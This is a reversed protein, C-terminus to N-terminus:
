KPINLVQLEVLFPAFFVSTKKIKICNVAETISDKGLSLLVNSHWARPKLKRYYDLSQRMLHNNLSSIFPGGKLCNSSSCGRGAWAYDPLLVLSASLSLFLTVYTRLFQFRIEAGRHLFLYACPSSLSACLSFPSCRHSHTCPQILFSSSWM